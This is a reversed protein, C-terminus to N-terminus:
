GNTPTAAPAAAAADAAPQNRRAERAEDERLTGLINCIRARVNKVAGDRGGGFDSVVIEGFHDIHTKAFFKGDKENLEIEFEKELVTVRLKDAM